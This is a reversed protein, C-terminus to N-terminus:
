LTTIILDNLYYIYIYIYIYINYHLSLVCGSVAPPAGEDARVCSPEVCMMIIIIIM